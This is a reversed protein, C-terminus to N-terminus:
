TQTKLHPNSELFAVWGHNLNNVLHAKRLWVWGIFEMNPRDWLNRNEPLYRALRRPVLCFVTKFMRM